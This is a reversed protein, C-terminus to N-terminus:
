YFMTKPKYSVLFSPFARCRSDYIINIETNRTRGVVTHCGSKPRIIGPNPEQQDEVGISVLALLLQHDGDPDTYAYSASYNIKDAFYLGRGWMGGNSYRFDFGIDTDEFIKKPNTHRTGHWLEKELCFGVKREIITKTGYIRGM